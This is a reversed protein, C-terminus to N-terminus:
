QSQDHQQAQNGHTCGSGGMGGASSRDSNQLLHSTKLILAIMEGTLLETGTVASDTLLSVVEVGTTLRVVGVILIYM